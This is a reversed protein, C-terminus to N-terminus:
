ARATRAVRTRRGKQILRLTEDLAEGPTRWDLTKRPRANLALALKTDNTESAAWNVVRRALLDLRVALFTVEKRVTM